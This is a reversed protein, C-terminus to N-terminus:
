WAPGPTDKAQEELKDLEELKVQLDGEEIVRNIDEQMCLLELNTVYKPCANRFGNCYDTRIM